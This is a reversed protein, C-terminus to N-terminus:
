RARVAALTSEAARLNDAGVRVAERVVDLASVEGGGAVAGVRGWERATVREVADALSGAEATLLELATAATTAAPTEWERDSPTTVAPHVVPHEEVLIQHLTRGLLVWTNTTAVVIDLAAHGDPGVRHVLEEVDPDDAIPLVTARYRRPYSRLAAIADQPTLRSVDLGM